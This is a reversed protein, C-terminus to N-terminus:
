FLYFILKLVKDKARAQGASEHSLKWDRRRKGISLIPHLGKYMNSGLSQICKVSRKESEAFSQTVEIDEREKHWKSNKTNVILVM